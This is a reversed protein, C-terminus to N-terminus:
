PRGSELIEEGEVDVLVYYREEGDVIFMVSWLTNDQQETYTTWNDADGMADWLGDAEYALSVAQDRAAQEAEEAELATEDIIEGFWYNEGDQSFSITYGQLGRWASLYWVKWMADYSPYVDWLLPDELVALVEPHNFALTRVEAERRIYEEQTVPQAVRGEWISGDRIDIVAYALSGSDNALEVWWIFESDYQWTWGDWGGTVALLNAVPEYAALRDLMIRDSGESYPEISAWDPISGAVLSGDPNVLNSDQDPVDGMPVAPQMPNMSPEPAMEQMGPQQVAPEETIEPLDAEEVPMSQQPRVDADALSVELGPIAACAWSMLVLVIISFLLNRNM